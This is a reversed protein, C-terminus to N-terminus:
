RVRGWTHAARGGLWCLGATGRWWGPWGRGTGLPCVWDHDHCCTGTVVYPQLIWGSDWTGHALYPCGERRALVPWSLGLVLWALRLM